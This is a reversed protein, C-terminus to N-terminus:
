PSRRTAAGSAGSRPQCGCLRCASPIKSTLVIRERMIQAGGFPTDSFYSFFDSWFKIREAIRDDQLPLPYQVFM